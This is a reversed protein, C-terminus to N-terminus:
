DTTLKIIGFFGLGLLCNGFLLLTSPEPVNHTLGAETFTTSFYKGKRDQCNAVAFTRLDLGSAFTVDVQNGGTIGTGTLEHVFIGFGIADNWQCGSRSCDQRLSAPQKNQTSSVASIKNKGMYTIDLM